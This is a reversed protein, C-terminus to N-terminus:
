HLALQQPMQYLYVALVFEPEDLSCILIGDREVEDKRV